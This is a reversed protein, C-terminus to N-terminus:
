VAQSRLNFKSYDGRMKLGSDFQFPDNYKRWEHWSSCTEKMIEPIKEDKVLDPRQMINVYLGASAHVVLHCHFPWVGPNDTEWQLVMYSPNDPYGNGIQHSDRRQPNQPNTIVGDWQGFGEALVWFESQGHLHMNHMVPYWNNVILRVSKAEGTNIVQFEPHDSFDTEGNFTELLLPQSYNAYFTQNNVYFLVNGTGNLAVTMDLTVTIDPEGPTKPFLPKTIALDDNQCNNSVWEAKESTPVVAPDADPYLVLATANPQISTVNLCPVDLDARMWVSDGPNGSAKVLVDTRQGVGLTVVKTTYPKVPVFDNAVVILDHGDISFKQNGGGGANILRLLHTKGTEFKFQAHTAKSSDCHVGSSNSYYSCDFPMLGNILNNEVPLFMPPIDYVALLYSLYETHTYDFLLIPGLDIDYDVLEPRVGHIVMPGFAGDIYQASFHTHYWSTGFEEPRFRYVFTEGPAIPCQTVSPVGDYWPTDRQALGHWHISTAEDPDRIGNHVTVEITDGWDAEILPGPFQDNVLIMHKSVGDPSRTGRAVTFNYRRVVGTDPLKGPGTPCGSSNSPVQAYANDSRPSSRDNALSSVLGSSFAVAYLLSTKAWMM